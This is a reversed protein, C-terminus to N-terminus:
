FILIAGSELPDVDDGIDEGGPVGKRNVDKGADSGLTLGLAAVGM